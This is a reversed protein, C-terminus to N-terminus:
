LTRDARCDRGARRRLAHADRNPGDEGVVSALETPDLLLV